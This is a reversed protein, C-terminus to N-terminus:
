EMLLGSLAVAREVEMGGGVMSQFARARGQVDSAKMESFGLTVDTELKATLEAEVKVALPSVVGFLALRWSERLSASDGSVFLSPNFGCAACVEASSHKFLDVLHETPAAGFRKPVLDTYGAGVNRRPVPYGPLLGGRRLGRMQLGESGRGPRQLHKASMHHYVGDYGRKLAAWHSEIGNTHAQERVYESVSHKVSEHPRPLGRYAAAEDTYVM